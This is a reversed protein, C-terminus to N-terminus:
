SANIKRYKHFQMKEELLHPSQFLTSLIYLLGGWNGLAKYVFLTSYAHEVFVVVRPKTHQMTQCLWVNFSPTIMALSMIYHAGIIATIAHAFYGINMEM